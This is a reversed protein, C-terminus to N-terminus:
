ATPSSRSRSYSWCWTSPWGSASRGCASPRTWGRASGQLPGKETLLLVLALVATVIALIQLSGPYFNLSLDGLIAGDYSWSLFSGVIVLAAGVLGLPWAAPHGTEQPEQTTLDDSM